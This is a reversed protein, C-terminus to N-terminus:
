PSQAVAVDDHAVTAYPTDEIGGVEIPTSFIIFSAALM